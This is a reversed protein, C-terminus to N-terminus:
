NKLDNVFHSTSKKKIMHNKKKKNPTQTKQTKHFKEKTKQICHIIIIFSIRALENLFCLSQIDIKTTQEKRQTDRYMNPNREM